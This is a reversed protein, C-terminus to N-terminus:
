AVREEEPLVTVITRRKKDYVVPVKQGALEVKLHVIRLSEQEIFEANGSQIMRCAAAYDHDTVYLNYRERARRIAHEKQKCAKDKSSRGKRRRM